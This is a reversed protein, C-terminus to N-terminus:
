IWLRFAYARCNLKRNREIYNSIRSKFISKEFLHISKLLFIIKQRSSFFKIFFIFHNWTNQALPIGVFLHFQSLIFNKLLQKKSRQKMQRRKYHARQKENCIFKNETYIYFQTIQKACRHSTFFPFSPSLSLSFALAFRHLFAVHFVGVSMRTTLLLLLNLTAFLKISILMLM